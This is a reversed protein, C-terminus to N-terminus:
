YREAQRALTKASRHAQEHPYPLKGTSVHSYKMTERCIARPTKTRTTCEASSCRLNPDLDNPGKLGLIEAMRVLWALIHPKTEDFIFSGGM